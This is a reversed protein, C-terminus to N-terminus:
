QDARLSYHALVLGGGLNAPSASQGLCVADKQQRYLARRAEAISSTGYSHLVQKWERGESGVKVQNEM